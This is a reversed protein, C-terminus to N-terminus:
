QVGQQPQTNFSYFIIKWAPGTKKLIFLERNFDLTKFGNKVHLETQGKLHHTRVLAIDGYVDVADYQFQTTFKLEKFLAVYPATLGAKGVM